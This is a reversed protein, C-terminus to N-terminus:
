GLEASIHKTWVRGALHDSVFSALLENYTADKLMGWVLIRAAAQLDQHHTAPFKWLDLLKLLKSRIVKKSGANNVLEAEAISSKIRDVAKIMEPDNHTSRRARYDEVYVPHGPRQAVWDKIAEVDIGDVVQYEVRWWRESFGDPPFVLRVLGTHVLGPDIGTFVQTRPM